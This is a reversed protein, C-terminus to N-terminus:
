GETEFRRCGWTGGNRAQVSYAEQGSELAWIALPVDTKRLSAYKKRAVLLDDTVALIYPAKVGDRDGVIVIYTTDNMM